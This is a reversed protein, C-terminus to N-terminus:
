GGPALASAALEFMKRLQATHRFDSVVESLLVLRYARDLEQAADFLNRRVVRVPLGQKAADDELIQALAGTMEVADVTFGMRALALANRGTGAGVDLVPSSAPEGLEAALAVLRRDPHAGFLGRRPTRASAPERLVHAAFPGL